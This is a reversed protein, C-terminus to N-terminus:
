PGEPAGEARARTWAFIVQRCAMCRYRWLRLLRAIPGRSRRSPRVDDARCRPCPIPDRVLSLM